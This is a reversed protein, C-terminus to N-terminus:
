SVQADALRTDLAPGSAAGGGSIGLFSRINSLVNESGSTIKKSSISETLLVIWFCVTPSYVSSVICTPYLKQKAGVNFKLTM